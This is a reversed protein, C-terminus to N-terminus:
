KSNKVSHLFTKQSELYDPYKGICYIIEGNVDAIKFIGTWDPEHSKKYKIADDYNSFLKWVDPSSNFFILAKEPHENILKWFNLGGYKKYLLYFLGLVFILIIYQM